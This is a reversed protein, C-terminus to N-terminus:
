YLKQCFLINACPAHFKHTPLHRLIKSAMSLSLRPASMLRAEQALAIKEPGASLVESRARKKVQIVEIFSILDELLSLVSVSMSVTFHLICVTVFLASSLADAM